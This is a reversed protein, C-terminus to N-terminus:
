QDQRLDLRLSWVEFLEWTVETEGFWLGSIKQAKGKVEIEGDPIAIMKWKVLHDALQDEFDKHQAQSMTTAVQCLAVSISLVVARSPAAKARYLNEWICM